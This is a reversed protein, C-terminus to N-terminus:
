AFRDVLVTLALVCGLVITLNFVAQFLPRYDPAIWVSIVRSANLYFQVTAVLAIVALVAFTGRYLYRRMSDTVVTSDSRTESRPGGASEEAEAQPTEVGDPPSGPAALEGIADAGEDTPEPEDDTLDDPETDTM